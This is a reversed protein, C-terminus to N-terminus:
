KELISSYLKEYQKAIIQPDYNTEVKNRANIRLNQITDNDNDIMYEIGKALESENEPPVLYGNEKHTIMEPIGGTQFAVVPLGCALAEMITNPLNEDLSPHVFVDAANYLNVLTENNSVYNLIHVQSPVQESFKDTTKGFVVLEINKQNDVM